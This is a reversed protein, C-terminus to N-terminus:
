AAKMGTVAWLKENIQHPANFMYDPNNVQEYALFELTRGRIEIEGTVRKLVFTVPGAEGKPMEPPPNNHNLPLDTM